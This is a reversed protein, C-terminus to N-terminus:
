LSRHHILASCSIEPFGGTHSNCCLNRLTRCPWAKQPLSSNELPSVLAIWWSSSIILDVLDYTCPHLLLLRNFYLFLIPNLRLLDLLCWYIVHISPESEWPVEIASVDRGWSNSCYEENNVKYISLLSRFYFYKCIGLNTKRTQLSKALM